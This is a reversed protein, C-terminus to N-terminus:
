AAQGKKGGTKKKSGGAKSKPAKPKAAKAAKRGAPAAGGAAHSAVRHLDLLRASTLRSLKERYDKDKTRKHLSLVADVLKDHGGLERVQKAVTLLRMLKSNAAALLRRRLNDKEEDGREAIDVIADVLKEKGGFDDNVRALPAKKTM